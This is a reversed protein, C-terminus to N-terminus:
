QDAEEIHGIVEVEIFGQCNGLVTFKGAHKIQFMADKFVIVGETDREGFRVIDGEFIEKGHKDTIGTGLWCERGDHLWYPPKYNNAYRVYRKFHHMPAKM